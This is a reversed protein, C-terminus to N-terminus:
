NQSLAFQMELAVEKNQEYSLAARICDLADSTALKGLAWASAARVLPENDQIGTKLPEFAAEQGSNGLNIAVNRLLGRRKSRWFPTKRFRERFQEDSLQFWELPSLEQLQASMTALETSQSSNARPKRNWPCVEQCIDCGFMWDGIQDRNEVPPLSQSEITFYSICKSGDLVYPQPFADTPCADLCATCTGCHSTAFPQDYELVLDTLIAALFFWSGDTPSILMTNKAQWGLGALQAFERELLPATDVVGRFLADPFHQSFERKCAKLKKHIVDHYDIGSRAYRSVRGTSLPSTTSDSETQDPMASDTTVNGTPDTSGYKLGLMIISQVGDLVANPHAYAQKRNELYDMEGAYGSDLWEYFRHVGPPQVAACIGVLDFGVSRAFQKFEIATWAPVNDPQTSNNM